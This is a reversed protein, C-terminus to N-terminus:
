TKSVKAILSVVDFYKYVIQGVTRLYENSTDKDTWVSTKFYATLVNAFLKLKDSNVRRIDILARGVPRKKYNIDMVLHMVSYIKGAIRGQQENFGTLVQICPGPKDTDRFHCGMADNTFFTEIGDITDWSSNFTADHIMEIVTISYTTDSLTFYGIRTFTAFCPKCHLMHNKRNDRIINNEVESSVKGTFKLMVRRCENKEFKEFPTINNVHPNRTVLKTHNIMARIPEDCISVMTVCDRRNAFNFRKWQKILTFQSALFTLLIVM